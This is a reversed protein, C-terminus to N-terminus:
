HFFCVFLCVFEVLTSNLLALFVRRRFRKPLLGLSLESVLKFSSKLKQGFLLSFCHTSLTWSDCIHLLTM